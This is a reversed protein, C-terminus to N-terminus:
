DYAVQLLKRKFESKTNKGTIAGVFFNNEEVAYIPLDITGDDNLLNAKVFKTLRPWDLVENFTVRVLEFDYSVIIPEDFKSMELCIPCEFDTIKWVRKSM